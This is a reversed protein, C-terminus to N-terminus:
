SLVKKTSVGCLICTLTDPNNAIEIGLISYTCPIASEMNYEKGTDEAKFYGLKCLSCKQGYYQLIAIQVHDYGRYRSYVVRNYYYMATSFWMMVDRNCLIRYLEEGTEDKIMNYKIVLEQTRQHKCRKKTVDPFGYEEEKGRFYSYDDLYTNNVCSGCECKKSQLDCSCKSCDSIYGYRLRQVLQNNEVSINPMIKGQAESAKLVYIVNGHVNTKIAKENPHRGSNINLPNGYTDYLEKIRKFDKEYYSETTLSNAGKDM